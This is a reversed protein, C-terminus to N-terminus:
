ERKHSYLKLRNEESVCKNFRKALQNVNRIVNTTSSEDLKKELVKKVQAMVDEYQMDDNEYLSNYMLSVSFACQPTLYELSLLGDEELGIYGWFLTFNPNGDILYRQIEPHVIIRPYVAIESELRYADIMAPGFVISSEHYLPGRAIGGRVLYGLRTLDLCLVNTVAMLRRLCIDFKDDTLYQSSLVISDSFVTIKINKTLQTPFESEFINKQYSGLRELIEAMEEILNPDKVSEEVWASFGLLDVFAIVHKKYGNKTM